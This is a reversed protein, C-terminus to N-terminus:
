DADDEFSRMLDAFYAKADAALDKFLSGTIIRPMRDSYWGSQVAVIWYRWRGERDKAFGFIPCGSMGEISEIGPTPGMEAYFTPYPSPQISSPLEKIQTVPISVIEYLKRELSVRNVTETPIGMIIHFEFPEDRKYQWQEETFPTPKNVEILRRYHPWILILGFDAGTKDANTTWKLAGQFDFPIIEDHTAEPGFNDIIGFHYSRNPERQMRAVIADIVHGATAMYWVDNISLLFGSTVFRELSGEKKPDHHDCTLSIFHCGFEKFLKADLDELKQAEM